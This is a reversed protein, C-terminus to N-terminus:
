SAPGRDRLAAGDSWTIEAPWGQDFVSKDPVASINAYILSGGGVAAGQAVAMHKFVRLDLWGNWREPLENSWWWPITTGARIPRPM